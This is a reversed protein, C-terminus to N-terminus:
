AVEFYVGPGFPSPYKQFKGTVGDDSTAAVPPGQPDYTDDVGAAFWNGWNRRAVHVHNPGPAVPLPPLDPCTGVPGGDAIWVWVIGTPQASADVDLATDLVSLLPAVPKATLPLGMARNRTNADTWNAVALTFNGILSRNGSDVETQISAITQAQEGPFPGAAPPIPIASNPVGSPKM